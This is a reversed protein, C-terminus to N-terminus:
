MLMACRGSCSVFSLLARLKACVIVVIAIVFLLYLLVPLMIVLYILLLYEVRKWGL